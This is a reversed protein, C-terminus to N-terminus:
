LEMIVAHERFFSQFEQIATMTCRNTEAKGRGGEEDMKIMLGSSKSVSQVNIARASSFSILKM